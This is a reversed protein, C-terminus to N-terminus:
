GQSKSSEWGPLVESLQESDTGWKGVWLFAKDSPHLHCGFLLTVLTESFLPGDELAVVELSAGPQGGAWALFQLGLFHQRRGPHPHLSRFAPSLALFWWPLNVSTNGADAESRTSPLHPAPVLCSFIQIWKLGSVGNGLSQASHKRLAVM